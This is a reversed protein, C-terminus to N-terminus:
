AVNRAFWHAFEEFDITGGGDKDISVFARQAAATSCLEFEECFVEFESIEWEGSGDFDFEDFVLRARRRQMARMCDLAEVLQGMREEMHKLGGALKRVAKDIEEGIEDEAAPEVAVGAGTAAAAMEGGAAKGGCSTVPLHNGRPAGDNALRCLAMLALSVAEISSSCWQRGLVRCQWDCKALNYMLERSMHAAVLRRFGSVSVNGHGDTFGARSVFRDFAAASLTVPPMYPLGRLGLRFEDASLTWSVVPGQRWIRLARKLLVVEKKLAEMGAAEAQGLRPDVAGVARSLGALAIDEFLKEVKRNVDSALGLRSLEKTIRHLPLEVQLVQPRFKDAAEREDPDLEDGETGVEAEGGAGAAASVASAAAFADLLVAMVVNILVMGVLIVYSVYFATAGLAGRAGPAIAAGVQRCHDSWGDGTMSQFLSFTAPLLSGFLDPAAGGFLSVGVVSYLALVLCVIFFANCMPAVSAALSVIINRFSPIRKFLRFVRFCRMLRMVDAGPLAPVFISVLSVTVVLVDFFNWADSVFATWLNAFLNVLLELAFVATFGLDIAGFLATSEDTAPVQAEALNVLFNSLIMAAVVVQVVDGAYFAHTRARVIQLVSAPRPPGPKRKASAAVARCMVEVWRDLEDHSAAQCIYCCGRLTGVPSTLLAFEGYSLRLELARAREAVFGAGARWFLRNSSCEDTAMQAHGTQFRKLRNAWSAADTDAEGERWM